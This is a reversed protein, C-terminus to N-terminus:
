LWDYWPMTAFLLNQCACVSKKEGRLLANLTTMRVHIIEQWGGMHLYPQPPQQTGELGRSKKM